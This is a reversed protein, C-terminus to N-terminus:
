LLRNITYWLIVLLLLLPIYAVLVSAAISIATIGIYKLAMVLASLIATTFVARTLAKGIITAFFFTYLAGILPNVTSLIVGVLLKLAGTLMMLVLIALLVVPAYTVLGEPLYYLILVSVVLHAILALTVTLCRFFLWGFFNKPKPMWRDLTNFLFSLIVMSLLESCIVTYNAGSLDILHLTEGSIQLFPMPALFAALRPEAYKLGVLVTCMMIIGIASSVAYTLNAKRGFIFRSLLGILLLGIIIVSSGLLMSPINLNMSEIHHIISEM